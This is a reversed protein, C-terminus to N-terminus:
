GLGGLAPFARLRDFTRARFGRAPNLAPPSILAADGAELPPRGAMEIQSGEEIGQYLVRAEDAWLGGDGAYLTLHAVQLALKDVHLEGQTENRMRLPCIALHPAFLHASLTRRATTPLWYALDGVSLDGWWTDSMAVSPLTVLTHSRDGVPLEVRVWIPVRVFVRAEAGPLLRFPWEPRMVVVRDPLMPRLAVETPAAAPAWRSWDQEAPPEGPPSDRGWTAPDGAGSGHDKHAVRVEGEIRRIWLDRVGVRFALTVNDSLAHRGWPAAPSDGDAASAPTTM